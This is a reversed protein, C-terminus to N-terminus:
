ALYDKVYPVQKAVVVASVALVGAKLTANPAIRYAAYLIGGAIAMKTLDM